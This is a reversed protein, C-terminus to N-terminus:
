HRIAQRHHAAHNPIKGAKKEAIKDALLATYDTGPSYPYEAPSQDKDSTAPAGKSLWWKVIGSLYQSGSWHMTKGRLFILAKVNDDVYASLTAKGKPNGSM